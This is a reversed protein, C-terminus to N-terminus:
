DTIETWGISACEFYRTVVVPSTIGEHIFPYQIKVIDGVSMSAHSNNFRAKLNVYDPAQGFRDDTMWNFYEFANSLIYDIDGQLLHTIEIVWRNCPSM